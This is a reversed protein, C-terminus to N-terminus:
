WWEFIYNNMKHKGKTCALMSWQLHCLIDISLTNYVLVAYFQRYKHFSISFAFSIVKKRDM